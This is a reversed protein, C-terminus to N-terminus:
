ETKSAVLDDEEGDGYRFGIKHSSSASESQVWGNHALAKQLKVDNSSVEVFDVNESSRSYLRVFDRLLCNEAENAIADGSLHVSKVKSFSESTILFGVVDADVRAVRVDTELDVKKMLQRWLEYSTKGTKSQRKQAYNIQMMSDVDNKRASEVLVGSPFLTSLPTEILTERFGGLGNILFALSYSAILTQVFIALVLVGGNVSQLNRIVSTLGALVNASQSDTSIVLLCFAMFALILIHVTATLVSITGTLIRWDKRIGLALLYIIALNFLLAILNSLTLAFFFSLGLGAIFQLISGSSQKVFNLMLLVTPFATILFSLGLLVANFSYLGKLNSASRYLRSRSKVVRYKQGDKAEM